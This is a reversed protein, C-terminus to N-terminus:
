LRDNDLYVDDFLSANSFHSFAYPLQPGHVDGGSVIRCSFMEALFYLNLLKM